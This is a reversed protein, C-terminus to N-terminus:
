KKISYVVRDKLVKLISDDDDKTIENKMVKNIWEEKNEELRKPNRIEQSNSFANYVRLMKQVLRGKEQVEQLHANPDFRAENRLDEESKISINKRYDDLIRRAVIVEGENKLVYKCGIDMELAEASRAAHIPTIITQFLQLIAKALSFLAALPTVLTFVAGRLLYGARSVGEDKPGYIAKVFCEGASAPFELTGQVITQVTRPVAWLRALTPSKCALKDLLIWSQCSLQNSYSLVSSM